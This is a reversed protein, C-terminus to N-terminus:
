TISTVRSMPLLLPTEWRICLLKRASRKRALAQEVLRTRYIVYAAILFGSIIIIATLLAMVLYASNYERAAQAAAKEIEIRELEVMEDLLGLLTRQRLLDHRLIEERVGSFRERTIRDVLALHLPQYLRVQELVKDLALQEREELGITILRDRLQIFEAAMNTFRRLEEERDFADDMIFMAYTSLARERVIHRMSFIIDAKTNYKETILRLHNHIATM